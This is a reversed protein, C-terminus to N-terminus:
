KQITRDHKCYVCIYGLYHIYKLSFHGGVMKHKRTRPVREALTDQYNEWSTHRFSGQSNNKSSIWHMFSASLSAKSGWLFWVTETTLPKFNGYWSLCNLLSDLFWVLLLAVKRRQVPGKAKGKQSIKKLLNNNEMLAAQYTLMHIAFHCEIEKQQLTAKCFQKQNEAWQRRFAEKSM